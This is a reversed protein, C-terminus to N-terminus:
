SLPPFESPDLRPNKTESRAIAPPEKQTAQPVDEAGTAPSLSAYKFPFRQQFKWHGNKLYEYLTLGNALGEDQRFRENVEEWTKQAQDPDVKNQITYHARFRQRDQRSLFDAGAPGWLQVLERWLRHAELSKAKLGVGRSMKFPKVVAISFKSQRSAVNRIDSTIKSLQSGPLAHFLTAHAGTKNLRRPFYQARLEDMRQQFATDTRLALVYTSDEDLGTHPIHDPNQPRPSPIRQAEPPPHNENSELAPASVTASMTLQRTRTWVHAARVLMSRHESKFVRLSKFYHNAIFAVRHPKACKTRTVSIPARDAKMM